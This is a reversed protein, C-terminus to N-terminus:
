AARRLIEDLYELDRKDDEDKYKELEREMIEKELAREEEEQTIEGSSGPPGVPCWTHHSKMFNIWKSKNNEIDNVNLNIVFDVCNCKSLNNCRLKNLLLNHNVEKKILRGIFFTSFHRKIPNTVSRLM